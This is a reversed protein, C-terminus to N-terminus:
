FFIRGYNVYRASTLDFSTKGEVISSQESTISMASSDMEMRALREQLKNNDSTLQEIKIKLEDIENEKESLASNTAAQHADSREAQDSSRRRQDQQLQVAENLVGIENKLKGNVTSLQSCKGELETVQESLAKSLKAQNEFEKEIARLSTVERELKEKLPQKNSRSGFFILCLIIFKNNDIFKNLFDLNIFWIIYCGCEKKKM